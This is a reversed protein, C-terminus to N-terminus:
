LHQRAVSMVWSWASERSPDYRPAARWVEALAEEALEQSWRADDTLTRAAGFVPGAVQDYVLAFAAEDGRAVRGLLGALDGPDGAPAPSAAWSEARKWGM